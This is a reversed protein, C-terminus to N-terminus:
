KKGEKDAIDTRNIIRYLGPSVVQVHPGPHERVCEGTESDVACDTGAFHPGYPDNGAPFYYGRSLPIVQGRNAKSPFLRGGDAAGKPIRLLKRLLWKM